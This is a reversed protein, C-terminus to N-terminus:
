SRMAVAAGAGILTAGAGRHMWRSLAPNRLGHGARAALAAYTLMVGGVVTFIVGVLGAAGWVNVTTLDIFTPLFALYFLITKPNGLTLLFGAAFMRRSPAPPQATEERASFSAHIMRGGMVVLAAAAVIRIASFVDGFAHAVASWGTLAALFYATDGLVIGLAMAAADRFGRAMARSVIAFVAPGPTAAAISLAVAMALLTHTEM